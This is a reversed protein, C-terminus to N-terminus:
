REFLNIYEKFVFFRNRSAGTIEPLIKLKEFDKILANATPFTIHLEGATMKVSIAPSSFLLKLLEQGLRARRGLMPINELSKERLRVIKDFTAASKRATEAVGSLFYRLWQDMDNKTRVFALADYYAGKNREFFESLYLTPKKLIGKEVLHLTILMRGIRGNGDLFPHITEFQYHSIAVKILHPMNLDDNHWFKELDSLLEPLESKHPPVFFADKINAGGIWNQSARIEGPMRYAGRVGTLLIKHAYRLLRMSLPLKELQAIAENMARIYNQVERWDNRREPQIENEPLLAEDMGTKTGEIRSSMTAEKTVHMQVFFDVDPILLSYADLEGVRRMAEELLVNLRKDQWEYPKNVPSPSFSKYQYQQKYSGANFSHTKSM